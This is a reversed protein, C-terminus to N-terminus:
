YTKSCGPLEFFVIFNLFYIKILVVTVFNKNESEKVQFKNFPFSFTPM